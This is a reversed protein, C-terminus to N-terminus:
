KGFLNLISRIYQAPVWYFFKNSKETPGLQLALIHYAPHGVIPESKCDQVSSLPVPSTRENTGIVMMHEAMKFTLRIKGRIDFLVLPCQPIPEPGDLPVYGMEVDAPMGKDLVKRHITMECWAKVPEPASMMAASPLPDSQTIPASMSAQQLLDEATPGILLVKARSSFKRSRLTQTDDKLPGKFSLKQSVTPCGTAKELHLKLEGVTRDLSFEVDHTIKKFVVRFKVVDGVNTPDPSTVPSVAAVAAAAEHSDVVDMATTTTAGATPVTQDIDM